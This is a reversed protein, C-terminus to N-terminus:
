TQLFKQKENKLNSTCNPCRTADASISTKCYKCLKNETTKPEGRFKNLQKIFLFLMFAIILFQLVANLFSGYKIAGFHLEKITNTDGLILRIAPTIIDTVLSNTIATFAAGIVVGVALDIANGKVAFKKFEELM